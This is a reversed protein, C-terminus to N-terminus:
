LWGALRPDMTCREVLAAASGVLRLGEATRARSLAVYMRLM